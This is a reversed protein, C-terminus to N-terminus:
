RLSPFQPKRDRSGIRTIRSILVNSRYAHLVNKKDNLKVRTILSNPANMFSQSCIKIRSDSPLNTMM